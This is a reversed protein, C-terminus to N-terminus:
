SADPALRSNLLVSVDFKKADAYAAGKDLFNNLNSLMKSFQVVTLDYFM